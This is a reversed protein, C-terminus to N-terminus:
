QVEGNADPRFFLVVPRNVEVKQFCNLFPQFRLLDFNGERLQIDVDFVVCICLFLADSLSANSRDSAKTKESDSSGVITSSLGEDKTPQLAVAVSIVLSLVVALVGLIWTWVTTASALFAILNNM